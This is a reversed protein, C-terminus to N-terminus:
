LTERMADLLTTLDTQNMGAFRQAAFAQTAAAAESMRPAVGADSVTRAAEQMEEARRAGHEIARSIMYRSHQTWDAGPFLNTLSAIVEAEVSYHRAALLSEAILAEMGKIVVSRCLKAAAARGLQADYFRAGTFGLQQAIPLFAEAHPGGLLMPSALRKPAVPAMIAAEVYAGGAKSIIEAAEIKAAPSASNLDLFFAGRKIASTAAQAAAVTQAATVASIILDAHAVADQASAGIHVGQQRAANAPKSDADAFLVDWASLTAHPALDHAFAAGVEGFGILCIRTM